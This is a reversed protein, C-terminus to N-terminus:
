ARYQKLSNLQGKRLPFKYLLIMIVIAQLWSSLATLFAENACSVVLSGLLIGYLVIGEPNHKIAQKYILVSLLGLAFPIIVIGGWGFDLFYSSYITYVNTPQPTLVNQMNVVPIYINAGFLNAIKYFFRLTPIYADTFTFSFNVVSDFAVLGGLTYVQLSNLVGALNETLGAGLSGGKGLLVAPIAFCILFALSGTLIPKM